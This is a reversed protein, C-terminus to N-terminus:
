DEYQLVEKILGEVKKMYQQVSFQSIVNECMDKVVDEDSDLFHTIGGVAEEDTEFTRGCTQECALIRSGGVVTSVFPVGLSISELLVTPFGETDSTMVLAKAQSIVPYPNPIYGPMLVRNTLGSKEIEEKLVDALAGSGLYYLSVDERKDSIMKFIKLMRLPNKNDDLRGVFVIAPKKLTIMPEDKAMKRVREYDIGNYIVRLKDEFEPFLERLSQETIDSIAVIRDAKKFAERQLDIEDTMVKQNPYRNVLDYVDGHIWAVTKKDLPLLFSPLLYNFSIYIDYDQPVHESIVKDWARYVDRIKIKRDQDDERVYYPYIKIGEDVPEEKVGYHVIEMLGIDYRGTRYLNNVITTLLSEAGGGNTYTYIIFFLRTKM